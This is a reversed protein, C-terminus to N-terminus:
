KFYSEDVEVNYEKKLEDIKEDLYKPLKIKKIYREIEDKCEEYSGDADSCREQYFAKMEDESVPVEVSERLIERHFRHMARDLRKQYEVPEQMKYDSVYEEIIKDVILGKICNRVFVESDFYERDDESGLQPDKYWEEKAKTLDEVTIVPKGKLTVLVKNNM